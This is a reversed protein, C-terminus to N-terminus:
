QIEPIDFELPQHESMDFEFEDSGSKRICNVKRKVIILSQQLSKGYWISSIDTLTGYSTEIGGGSRREVKIFESPFNERYHNKKILGIHHARNIQTQTIGRTYIYIECKQKKIQDLSFNQEYVNNNDIVLCLM